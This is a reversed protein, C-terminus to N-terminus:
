WRAGRVLGEGRRRGELLQGVPVHIEAQYDIEDGPLIWGFIRPGDPDHPTCTATTVAGVVGPTRYGARDVFEWTCDGRPRPQGGLGPFAWIEVVTSTVADTLQVRLTSQDLGPRATWGEPIPVRLPLRGDRYEDGVVQGAPRPAAEGPGLEPADPAAPGQRCAPCGLALLLLLGTM